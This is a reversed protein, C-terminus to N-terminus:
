APGKLAVNGGPKSPQLSGAWPADKWEYRWIFQLVTGSLADKTPDLM